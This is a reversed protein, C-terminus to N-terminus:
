ETRTIPRTSVTVTKIVKCAAVNASIFLILFFAILETVAYGPVGEM